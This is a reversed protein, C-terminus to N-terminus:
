MHMEFFPRTMQSPDIRDMEAEKRNIVLFPM